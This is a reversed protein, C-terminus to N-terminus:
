TPLPRPEGERPRAGVNQPGAPRLIRGRLRAVALAASARGGVGGRLPGDGGGWKAGSTCGWPSPGTQIPSPCTSESHLARPTILQRTLARPTFHERLTLQRTLARPTILERLPDPSTSLTKRQALSSHERVVFQDRGARLASTRAGEGFRGGPPQVLPASPPPLLNPPHCPPLPGRPSTQRAPGHWPGVPNGSDDHHGCPLQSGGFSATPLSGCHCSGGL